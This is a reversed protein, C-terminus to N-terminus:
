LFPDVLKFGLAGVLVCFSFSLAGLVQYAAGEEINSRVSAVSVGNQDVSVATTSANM